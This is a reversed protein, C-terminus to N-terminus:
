VNDKREWGDSIIDFEINEWEWSQMMNLVKASVIVIFMYSADEERNLELIMGEDGVEYDTHTYLGAISPLDQSTCKVITM